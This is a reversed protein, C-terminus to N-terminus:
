GLLNIIKPKLFNHKDSFAPLKGLLPFHALRVKLVLSLILRLCHTCPWFRPRGLPFHGLFRHNAFKRRKIVEISNILVNSKEKLIIKRTVNLHILIKRATLPTSKRSFRPFRGTSQKKLQYWSFPEKTTKNLLSPSPPYPVLDHALYLSFMCHVGKVRVVNVEDRDQAYM